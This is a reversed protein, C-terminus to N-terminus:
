FVIHVLKIPFLQHLFSPSCEKSSLYWTQERLRDCCFNCFNSSSSKSLFKLKSTGLPSLSVEKDTLRGFVGDHMFVMGFKKWWGKGKDDYGHVLSHWFAQEEKTEKVKGKENLIPNGEDDLVPMDITATKALLTFLVAGVQM